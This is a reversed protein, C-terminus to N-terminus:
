GHTQATQTPAMGTDGSVHKRRGAAPVHYADLPGQEANEHLGNVEGADDQAAQVVPVVEGPGHVLPDGVYLVQWWEVGEVLGQEAALVREDTVEKGGRHGSSM